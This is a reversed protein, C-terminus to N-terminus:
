NIKVIKLTQLRLKPDWVLVSAEFYSQICCQINELTGGGWWGFIQENGGGLFIGGVLLLLGIFIDRKASTM